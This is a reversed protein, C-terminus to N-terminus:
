KGDSEILISYKLGSNPLKILIKVKKCFFLKSNHVNWANWTGKTISLAFREVHKAHWKGSLM